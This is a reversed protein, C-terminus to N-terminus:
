PRRELGLLAVAATACRQAAGRQAEILERGRAAIRRQREPDRAIRVFEEALEEAGQVQFGVQSERVLDSVDSCNQTHPGFLVARGAAVPELLNHGGIPM